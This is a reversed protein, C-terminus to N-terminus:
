VREIELKDIYPQFIKQLQFAVLFGYIGIALLMFSAHVYYVLLGVFVFSGVLKVNTWVHYNSLLIVNKILQTWKSTKFVALVPFVYLTFVLWEYAVFVGIVIMWTVSHEFGYSIMVYTSFGLVLLGIYILTSQIFNEKFSKLFLPFVSTVEKTKFLQFIVRFLATTAAGLTILIGLFSFLIWLFNVYVLDMTRKYLEKLM